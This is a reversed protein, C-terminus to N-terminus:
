RFGGAMHMADMMKAKETLQLALWVVVVTALALWILENRIPKLESGARIIAYAVLTDLVAVVIIATSVSESMTRIQFRILQDIMDLM